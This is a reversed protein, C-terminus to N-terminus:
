SVDKPNFTITFVQWLDYKQPPLKLPQCNPNLLARMASEAAARFFPDSLREPNLLTASRVTGDPNMYVRYEPRLDHADRAGAPVNWCQEIQQRVLDLESISLQEGLPAIPQSSPQPKQKPSTQDTKLPKAALNKLLQDFALEQRKQKPLPQPPRPKTEPRPPAPKPEPPKIEAPKPQPPPPPPPAPKAAPPTPVPKQSETAATTVTKHPVPPEFNKMTALTKPGVNVIQVVLPQEEAIRPQFLQPLGLAIALLVLLHLTASYVLGRREPMTGTHAWALSM